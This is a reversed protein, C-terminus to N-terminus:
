AFGKPAEFDYKPKHLSEPGKFLTVSRHSATRSTGFARSLISEPRIDGEPCRPWNHLPIELGAAHHPQWMPGRSGSCQDLYVAGSVPVKFVMVCAATQLECTVAPLPGHVSLLLYPCQIQM